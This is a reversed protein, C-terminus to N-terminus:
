SIDSKIRQTENLSKLKIEKSELVPLLYIFGSGFWYYVLMTPNFVVRDQFLIIQFLLMTLAAEKYFNDKHKVFGSYLAIWISIKLSYWLIFGLLGLEIVIRGMESENDPVVEGSPLNLVGRLSAAGGQTAGAGYGEIKKEAFIYIEIFPGIIREVISDGATENRYSLAEIAVQFNAITIAFSLALPIFLRRVFNILAKPDTIGIIVIFSGAFLIEYIIIGRSGSMFSNTIVLMLELCYIVIWKIEKERFIVLVILSFCFQLYTTLGSLYSFSGTIRVFEGVTDVKGEEGAIYANLPSDFPSFYQVIGLICVPIILLLYRRIFDRLETQSDFLHPVVWLLPIYLLYSRIGLLGIIPSGLSPNFALLCCLVSLVQTIAKLYPYRDVILRPKSFFGLYAGILIFDKVFYILDRAQPFAWRRLAGEVVILVLIAKISLKWNQSAGFIVLVLILGAIVEM